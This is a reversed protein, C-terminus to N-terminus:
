KATSIIFSSATNLKIYIAKTWLFSNGVNKKILNVVVKSVWDDQIQFAQNLTKSFVKSSDM